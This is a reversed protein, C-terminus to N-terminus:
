EERSYRAAELLASIKAVLVQNTARSKVVSMSVERAVESPPQDISFVMIEPPGPIANIEEILQLGSGDPLYQDLIVLDYRTSSLRERAEQCSRAVDVQALDAILQAVIGQLDLDDEVYLVKMNTTDAQGKIALLLSRLRMPEFPKKFWQVIAYKQRDAEQVDLASIAIIPTGRLRESADIFELVEGGSSEALKWDLTVIDFRDRELLQRAENASTCVQVEFGSNRVLASIVAATDANDECILAKWSAAGKQTVPRYIPRRMEPMAVHRQLADLEFYFATGSASTDFSIWGDHADMIAKCISLGLGSGGANRRDSGDVQTFKEFIKARFDDPIGPGNDAVTIRWRGNTAEVNVRVATDQPSFKMANSLLNTLVQVLRDCDGWVLADTPLASTEIRVGYTLTLADCERVAATVVEALDVEEFDFKMRGSEIKEMDLIDNIITILRKCNSHAMEVLKRSRADLTGGLGSLLLSLAGKVASLPTRLEHSVTSVFESKLRDVELQESMDTLIAVFMKEGDRLAESIAIQVPFEQNGKRLGKILRKGQLTELCGSERARQLALEFIPKDEGTLLETLPTGVLQSEEYQFMDLAAQNCTGIRGTIDTLFVGDVVGEVVTTFRRNGEEITKAERLVLQRIVALFAARVKGVDDAAREPWHIEDLPEGALIQNAGRTLMAMPQAFRWTAYYLLGGGALILAASMLGIQGVIRNAGANLARLPAVLMAAYRPADPDKRFRIPNTYILKRIGDPTDITGFHEGASNVELGEPYNPFEDSMSRAAGRRVGSTKEPEPHYIFNGAPDAVYLSAGEPIASRLLALIANGSVDAVIVGRIQNHQNYVPAALRVVPDLSQELEGDEVKLSFKSQYIEDRELGFAKKVYLRDGASQLEREPVRLFRGGSRKVRVVERGGNATEIFRIEVVSSSMKLTNDFVSGVNNKFQNVAQGTVPDVGGADLARILGKASTTGSMILVRTRLNELEEVVRQEGILLYERFKSLESQKIQDVTQSYFAAGIVGATVTLILMGLLTIKISDRNLL